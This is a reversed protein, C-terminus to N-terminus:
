PTTDKILNFVFNTLDLKNRQLRVNVAQTNNLRCHAMERVAEQFADRLRLFDDAKKQQAPTM